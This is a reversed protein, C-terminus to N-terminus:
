DDLGTGGGNPCQYVVQLPTAVTSPQLFFHNFFGFHHHHCLISTSIIFATWSNQLLSPGHPQMNSRGNRNTNPSPHDTRDKWEEPANPREEQGEELIATITDKAVSQVTSSGVFAFTSVMPVSQFKNAPKREQRENKETSLRQLLGDGIKLRYKISLTPHFTSFNISLTSCTQAEGGFDM